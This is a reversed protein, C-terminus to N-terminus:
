RIGGPFPGAATRREASERQDEYNEGKDRYELIERKKTSM